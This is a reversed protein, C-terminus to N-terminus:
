LIFHMILNLITVFSIIYFIVFKKMFNNDEYSKLNVNFVNELKDPFLIITESLIGLLICIFIGEFNYNDGTIVGLSIIGGVTTCIGIAMSYWYFWNIKYDSYNRNKLNFIKPRLLMVLTPYVLWVVLMVFFMMNLENAQINDEGFM